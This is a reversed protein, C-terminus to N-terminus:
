AAPEGKALRGYAAAARSVDVDSMVYPQDLSELGPLAPQVWDPRAHQALYRDIETQSIYVRWGRKNYRIERDRLARELTSMSVNLAQCAEARSYWREGGIPKPM